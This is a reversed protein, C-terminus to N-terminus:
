SSKKKRKRISFGFHGLAEGLAYYHGHSFCIPTAKSLDFRGSKSDFYEPDAQVCTIDAMFVTHSGCAMENFVKCELNIPAEALLPASVTKAPIPTLQLASFKDEIQAKSKVGCWDTAKKLKKTTLNIVFESSKKIMRHSYREPRVSIYCRPPKTSLIGTWAITVLNCDYPVLTGCSVLVAPLPFLMTGGPWILRDRKGENKNSMMKENYCTPVNRKM